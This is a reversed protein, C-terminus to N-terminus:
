LSSLLEEIQYDIDEIKKMYVNKQVRLRDVEEYVEHLERNKQRQYAMIREFVEDKEPPANQKEEEERKLKFLIRKVLSDWDKTIVELFTMMEAQPIDTTFMFFNFMNKDNVISLIEKSGITDANTKLYSYTSYIKKFKNILQDYADTRATNFQPSYKVNKDNFYREIKKIFQTETDVDIEIKKTNKGRFVFNEWAHRMQKNFVKYFVSRM